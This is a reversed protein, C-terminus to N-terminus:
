GFAMREKEEIYQDIWSKFLEFSSELARQVEPGGGVQIVPAFVVQIPTGSSNSSIQLSSSSDGVGLIRAAQALLSMSRPTRQLPIAMEPGAEGFISPSSAIGGIAYHKVSPASQSAVSTSTSKGIGFFNKIPEAVKGIWSFFEKGKAMVWDWNKWLAVGAGILLGIATVVVGIPNAEMAANWLWQAATIFGLVKSGGGAVVTQYEIWACQTAIYGSSVVSAINNANQAVTSAIVASKQAIYAATLGSAIPLLWNSNDKAWQIGDGVASFAIGVDQTIKGIDANEAWNNATKVWQTLQPLAKQGITASLQQINTDFLKTQIAFSSDKTRNFDGMVDSSISLLYNYRLLTQSAQDMKDWSTKIGKSFAYAQLNAVSLNKGLQKLPETEGSIGSRIKEFAEESTLNYFSAYDGALSTLNESMQILSDGTIGSSKMMSGLTSNYKKAELDSLGFADLAAKSWDNIKSADKGFTVDVVNQVETLDSALKVGGFALDKVKDAINEIANAALNGIFTGKIINGLNGTEKSARQASQALRMTEGSAKLMASQLSPDIKGALVILAKLEKSSAM